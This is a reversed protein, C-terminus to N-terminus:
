EILYVRKIHTRRKKEPPLQLYNHYGETLYGDYDIPGDFECDEFRYKMQPVFWKSPFYRNYYNPDVPIVCFDGPKMKDMLEM